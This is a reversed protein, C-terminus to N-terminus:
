LESSYVRVADALARADVGTTVYGSVRIFRRKRIRPVGVTVAMEQVLEVVALGVVTRATVGEERRKIPEPEIEEPMPFDGSLYAPRFARVLVLAALPLFLAGLALYYWLHTM